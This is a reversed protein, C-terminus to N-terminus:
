RSVEADMDNRAAIPIKESTKIIEIESVTKSKILNENIPEGFSEETEIIFEASIDNQKSIEHPHQYNSRVSVDM